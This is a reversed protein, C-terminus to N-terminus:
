QESVNRVRLLARHELTRALTTVVRVVATYTTGSVGAAVYMAVGGDYLRCKSLDWGSAYSAGGSQLQALSVTDIEELLRRGQYPETRPLLLDGFDVFILTEESTLKSFADMPRTDGPRQQRAVTVRQSPVGLFTRGTLLAGSTFSSVVDSPTGAGTYGAYVWVQKLTSAGVTLDNIHIVLSKDAYVFTSRKFSLLTVGDSDTVRLDAGDSRLAAWFAADTADMTIAVDSTGGGHASGDVMVARRFKWDSHYWSM